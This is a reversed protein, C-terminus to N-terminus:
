TKSPTRTSAEGKPGFLEDFRETAPRDDARVPIHDDVQREKDLTRQLVRIRKEVEEELQKAESLKSKDFALKGAAQAAEVLKLEAQLSEAKAALQEYQRRYETVKAQAAELTRKREALM